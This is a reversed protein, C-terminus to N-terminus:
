RLEGRMALVQHELAQASVEAAPVPAACVLGIKSHFRKPLGSMAAGDKRSFFSGWLGRLALPVVPVPTREIIREIGPRFANLEGDKTIKGEPFICVLDGDQLAQAVDEFAQEMLAPDERRSAIPIARGTRFIFNLVPIRFINHDMVFRAPRRCVAAVILADVFSVHNCVLVAPGEDPIREEGEVEVRYLTHVLMWILFRMLFEPLLTYIYVAVAANLCATVLFLEPVSLGLERLAIALLAAVVMFLANLINNGAIIRSRFAPESRQQVIAYLPVIYFGGFVGLMVLDALIRMRAWSQLFDAAGMSVAPPPHAQLAFYLDIGFLTLGISGFPVLGLEVKRGSLRECLLSGVGIGVSFCVLLLGVVERNGHLEETSL